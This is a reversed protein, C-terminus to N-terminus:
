LSSGTKRRCGKWRRAWAKWAALSVLQQQTDRGAQFLLPELVPDWHEGVAVRGPWPDPAQLASSSTSSILQCLVVGWSVSPKGCFIQESNVSAPVLIAEEEQVNLGEFSASQVHHLYLCVWWSAEEQLSSGWSNRPSPLPNASAPCPKSFLRCKQARWVQLCVLDSGSSVSSVFGQCPQLHSEWSGEQLQVM